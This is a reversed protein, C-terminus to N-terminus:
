KRQFAILRQHWTRIWDVPAAAVPLFKQLHDCMCITVHEGTAALFVSLNEIWNVWNNCFHTLVHGIPECFRM